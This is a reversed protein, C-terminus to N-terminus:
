SAPRQREPDGPQQGQSWLMLENLDYRYPGFPRFEQEDFLRKIGCSMCVQYCYGQSRVPWSMKSHWCGRFLFVAAGAVGTAVVGVPWFWRSSRLNLMFQSDFCGPHLGSYTEEGRCEIAGVQWSTNAKRKRKGFFVGRNQGEHGVFRNGPLGFGQLKNTVQTGPRHFVQEGEEM